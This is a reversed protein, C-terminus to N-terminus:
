TQLRRARRGQVLLVLPTTTSDRGGDGDTDAAASSTFLSLLPSASLAGRVGRARSAGRDDPGRYKQELREMVKVEYADEYLVNAELIGTPSTVNVETLWGGIVDLGVFFHGCERLWPGLARVIAEDRDDLKTAMPKAGVHLNGRADDPAPM